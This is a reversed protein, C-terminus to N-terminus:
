PEKVHKMFLMIKSKVHFMNFGGLIQNKICQRKFLGIFLAKKVLLSLYLDFVSM